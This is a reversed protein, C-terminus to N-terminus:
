GRQKSPSFDHRRKNEHVDRCNQVSNGAYGFAAQRVTQPITCIEGRTADIAAEALSSITSCNLYSWRGLNSAQIFGEGEGGILNEAPVRLAEADARGHRQLRAYRSQKRKRATFGKAKDVVRWLCFHGKGGKSGSRYDALMVCISGVSGCRAYTEQSNM